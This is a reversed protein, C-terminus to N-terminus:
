SYRNFLSLQRRQLLHTGMIARTVFQCVVYGGIKKKKKKIKHGPKAPSQHRLM